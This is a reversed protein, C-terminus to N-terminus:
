EGYPNQDNEKLKFYGEMVDRVIPAAEKSGEQGHYVFAVVAIEPDNYPAYGIYWAHAPWKEEVCLGKPRAIDDCYEATGTKGSSEFRAGEFVARATGDTVVKRMGQQVEKVVWPAITKREVQYVTNGFRDTLINGQADREPLPKGDPGNIYTVQNDQDFIAIKPDKTVDWVEKPTFPQIIHGEADLVNKILTPKMYKGDAAIVSASMLVQIPTALVYGQGITSIYTDGSSWNEAYTLRKWTPDPILGIQEGPLEIGSAQDYGLAKAYEGLRYIGLGNGPVEDKYGGGVKYFYVDCSNAFGNLFDQMGHGGGTTKYIWCVFDRPTGPDNEYYIQNITIKGPDDVQYEPTVVGENLIGLSAALKFVSGPPHEASIAHNFLPKWPDTSLQQYYDAPIARALRNNEFTPYSVLSLIEGTKPNMAIVVGNPSPPDPLTATFYDIWKKLSAESIAQLRTDITLQLNKGAVPQVPQGITGIEQGAVDREVVRSGNIGSLLPNGDAGCQQDAEIGAYGVKDRGIQLNAVKYCPYDVQGEPVPGLFGVVEATLEGTPYDRVPEVEIDVGPWDATKEKIIMATKEDINCKIRLPQYPWNTSGIYVIQTIGLDTQCPSFTKVTNEDLTGHSVPINVLKSLERYIDQIEGSAQPEEPDGPLNAPTIVLNYSAANRALIIGNRDYIIGRPAQLSITKIRNNNAQEVFEKSNLIQLSFLRIGYFVFIGAIVLYLLRLRWEEFRKGSSTIESM